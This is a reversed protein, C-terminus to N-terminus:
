IGVNEVLECRRGSVKFRIGVESSLNVEVRNIVWWSCASTDKCESVDFLEIDYTDVCFPFM